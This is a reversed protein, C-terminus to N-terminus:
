QASIEGIYFIDVPVEFVEKPLRARVQEVPLSTGIMLCPEGKENQGIAISEVGEIAMVAGDLSARIQEIKQVEKKM